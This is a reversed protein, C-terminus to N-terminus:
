SLFFCLYYIFTIMYIYLVSTVKDKRLIENVFSRRQKWLPPDFLVVKVSNDSEVDEEKNDKENDENDETNEKNDEKRETNIEMKMKIENSVEMEM